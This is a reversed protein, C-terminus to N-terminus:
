EATSKFIVGSIQNIEKNCLSSYQIDSCIYVGNTQSKGARIKPSVEQKKFISSLM